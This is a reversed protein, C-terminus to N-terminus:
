HRAQPYSRREPGSKRLEPGNERLEPAIKSQYRSKRGGQPRKATGHPLTSM